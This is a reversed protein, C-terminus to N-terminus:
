QVRVITGDDNREFDEVGEHTTSEMCGMTKGHMEADGKRILESTRKATVRLAQTIQKHSFGDRYLAIACVTLQRENM